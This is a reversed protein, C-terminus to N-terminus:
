VQTSGTDHNEIFTVSRSTWWGMV